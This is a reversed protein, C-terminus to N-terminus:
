SSKPQQTGHKRRPEEDDIAQPAVRTEVISSAMSSAPQLKTQPSSGPFGSIKIGRPRQGAQERSMQDSFAKIPRFVILTLAISAVLNFVTSVAQIATQSSLLKNFEKSSQGRVGYLPLDYELLPSANGSCDFSEPYHAKFAAVDLKHGQVQVNRQIMLKRQTMAADLVSEDGLALDYVNSSGVFGRFAGSLLEFRNNDEDYLYIAEYGEGIELVSLSALKSKGNILDGLVIVGLIGEDSRRHVPTVTFRMVVNRTRSMLPHLSSNKTGEPYEASDLWVLTRWSEFETFSVKVPVQITRDNELVYSVISQLDFKSGLGIGLSSSYIVTKNKDVFLALEIKQTNVLAEVYGRSHNAQHATASGNFVNIISDQSAFANAHVYLSELKRRYGLYNVRAEVPLSSNELFVRDMAAINYFMMGLLFMASFATAVIARMWMKKGNRVQELAAQYKAFLKSKVLIVLRDLPDIFWRISLVTAFVDVLIGCTLFIINVIVINRFSVDFSTRPSGRILLACDGEDSISTIRSDQVQGSKPIPIAVVHYDIGEIKFDGAIAAFGSEDREAHLAKDFFKANSFVFDSWHYENKTQQISSALRWENGYKFVISAFGNELLDLAKAPIEAKGQMIWGSIVAGIVNGSVVDRVTAISFRVLGPSRTEYVHLGSFYDAATTRFLPANEQVLEDYPIVAVSLSASEGPNRFKESVMGKPDFVRGNRDGHASARIVRNADVITLFEYKGTEATQKLTHSVEALVASDNTLLLEQVINRRAEEVVLDASDVHRLNYLLKLIKAQKKSTLDIDKDFFSRMTLLHVLVLAIVIAELALLMMWARNRFKRVKSSKGSSGSGSEAEQAQTSDISGTSPKRSSVAQSPQRELDRDTTEETRLEPADAEQM